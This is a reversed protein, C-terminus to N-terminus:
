LDGIIDPSIVYYYMTVSTIYRCTFLTLTYVVITLFLTLSSNPPCTFKLPGLQKTWPSKVGRYKREESSFNGTPVKAGPFLNGPVFTGRFMREVSRYYRPAFQVLLQLTKYALAYILALALISFLGLWSPVATLFHANNHRRWWLASANLSAKTQRRDTTYM